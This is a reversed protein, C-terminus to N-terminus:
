VIKKFTKVLGQNEWVVEKTKKDIMRIAGEPCVGVCLGCGWCKDEDINVTGKKMDVEYVDFLCVRACTNCVTPRCSKMNVEPIIPSPKENPSSIIPLELSGEPWEHRDLLAAKKAKGIFERTTLYGKRDMWEKLGQVLDNILGYGNLYIGSCVEVASCGLLLYQLVDLTEFIGGCGIYPADLVKMMQQIRGLSWPIVARGLPLGSTGPVGFPEEAEVDIALGTVTNHALIMDIGADVWTKAYVEVPDYLLSMKGILPISIAERVAKIAERGYDLDAFADGACKIGSLVTAIPCSCDMELADAGAEEFKKAWYSWRKPDYNCISVILPIEAENCLRVMRPMYKELVVQPPRAVFGANALWSTELGFRGLYFAWPRPTTKMTPPIDDVYSKTVIGGIGQKICKEVGEDDMVIESSGPLIPNKLTLPGLKTTLDIDAM